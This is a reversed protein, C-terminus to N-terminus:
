IGAAVPAPAVRDLLGAKAACRPSKVRLKRDSFFVKGEHTSHWIIDGGKRGQHKEGAMGAASLHYVAEIGAQVLVDILEDLVLRSTALLKVLPLLLQGNPALYRAFGQSDKRDVVRDSPKM